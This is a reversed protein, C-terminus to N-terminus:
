DVTVNGDKIVKAWRDSEAKMMEAFQEPTNGIPEAGESELRERVTASNITDVTAQRLKDVIPRPTGKPVVFGYWASAEYDPLGSEAVTPVEPLKKSRVKTTVALPTVKGILSVISPVTTVMFDLRAGMLDNLAPSAGRYPVHLLDLKATQALLVTALHSASGNGASGYTLKGPRKRADEILDTFTKYPSSPPVVVALPVATIMTVPDFATLPNVKLNKFLHPNVVMPGQNAMLVTYGDPPSTSVQTTAVNGGASGNNEVVMVKGLKEGVGNAVLRAIADTGGGAAYPVLLRLVKTPYEQAHASGLPSAVSAAALGACFQRRTTM